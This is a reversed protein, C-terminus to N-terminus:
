SFSSFIRGQDLHGPNSIGDGRSGSFAGRIGTASSSWIIGSHSGADIKGPTVFLAENRKMVAIIKKVTSLVKAVENVCKDM